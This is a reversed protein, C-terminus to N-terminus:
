GFISNTTNYNQILVSSVTQQETYAEVNIDPNDWLLKKYNVKSKNFVTKIVNGYRSEYKGPALDATFREKLEEFKDKAKKYEVQAMILEKIDKETLQKTM